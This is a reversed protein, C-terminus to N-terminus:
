AAARSWASIHIQYITTRSSAGDRCVWVLEPPKGFRLHTATVLAVPAEDAIGCSGSLRTLGVPVSVAAMGAATSFTHSASITGATAMGTAQPLIRLAASQDRRVICPFAITQRNSIAPCSATAMGPISLTGSDTCPAPLHRSRPCYLLGFRSQSRSNARCPVTGGTSKRHPGQKSPPYFRGAAIGTRLGGGSWHGAPIIDFELHPQQRKLESKGAAPATRCGSGTGDPLKRFSDMVMAPGRSKKQPERYHEAVVGWRRDRRGRRGVSRGM